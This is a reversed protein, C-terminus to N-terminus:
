LNLVFPSAFVVDKNVEVQHKQPTQGMLSVTNAMVACIVLIIYARKM